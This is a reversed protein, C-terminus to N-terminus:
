VWCRIWRVPERAPPQPVLALVIEVSCNQYHPHAALWCRYAAELRLRKAAGFSAIGWGDPGCCRRSKVEVLLLRKPKYLLLDLEGWRCRWQCELAQWGASQLLRLARREAWNGRRQNASIAM